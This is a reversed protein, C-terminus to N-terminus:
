FAPHAGLSFYMEDGGRNEVRYGVELTDDHITYEILLQFPFPYKLLSEATDHIAFLASNGSTSVVEFDQDRAFGHRPLAYANGRFRFTNDKLTGVIPFLVPSTKGWFAPDGRWMYELKNRKHVVTFLEAGASKIGIKIYDNELFINM